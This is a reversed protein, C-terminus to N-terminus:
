DNIWRQEAEQEGQREYEHLEGMSEFAEDMAAMQEEFDTM